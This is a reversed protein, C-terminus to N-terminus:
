TNGAGLWCANKLSDKDQDRVSMLGKITSTIGPNKTHDVEIGGIEFRINDFLYAMANNVFSIDADVGGVKKAIVKGTIHLTSEFPATIIDQQSVAIRIEDNNKYTCSAYPKYTHFEYGTVTDEYEAASEISFM